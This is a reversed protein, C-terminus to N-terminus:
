KKMKKNSRKCISFFVGEGLRDLTEGDYVGTVLQWNDVTPVPFRHVQVFQDGVQWSAPDVDLGDWQSAIQGSEDLSHVFIKLPRETEALVEWATLIVIENEASILQYGLFRVTGELDQATESFDTLNLGELRYLDVEPSEVIPDDPLLPQLVPDVIQSGNVALWGGNM